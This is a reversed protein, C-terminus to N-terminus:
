EFQRQSVLTQIFFPTQQGSVTATGEIMIKVSPQRGDAIDSGDVVTTFNVINIEPATIASCDTGKLTVTMSGRSICRYIGGNGNSTTGLYYAYGDTIKSIPDYLGFAFGTGGLPCDTGVISLTTTGTSSICTYLSGLRGSRTISELSFQVNDLASRVAQGQKSSKQSSLLATVAVLMVVIFITTAVLVEVLTF